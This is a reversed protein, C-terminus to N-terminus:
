IMGRSQEDIIAPCREGYRAVEAANLSRLIGDEPNYSENCIRDEIICVRRSGRLLTTQVELGLIKIVVVLHIVLGENTDVNM